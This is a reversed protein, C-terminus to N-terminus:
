FQQHSLKVACGLDLCGARYTLVTSLGSCRLRLFFVFARACPWGGLLMRRSMNSYMSRYASSKNVFKLVPPQLLLRFVNVNYLATCLLVSLLLDSACVPTLPNACCGTTCYCYTGTSTTAPGRPTETCRLGTQGAHQPPTYFHLHNAINLCPLPTKIKNIMWFSISKAHKSHSM